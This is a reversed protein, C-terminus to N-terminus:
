ILGPRGARRHVGGSGDGANAITVPDTLGSSLDARCRDAASLAAVAVLPAVWVQRGQSLPTSEDSEGTATMM